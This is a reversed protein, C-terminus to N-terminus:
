EKAYEWKYGGATYRNRYKRCVSAIHSPDIGTKEQADLTSEYTNLLEGSLSFQNVIKRRKKSNIKLHKGPNSLGNEYAHKSNASLTVYELNEVRYDNKIGNIHNICKGKPRTRIFYEAVLSHIRFMKGKNNKWLQITPYGNKQQVIKKKKPKIYHLSLIEGFENIKYKPYEKITKWMIIVLFAREARSTSGNMIACILRNYVGAFGFLSQLKNIQKDDLNLPYNM